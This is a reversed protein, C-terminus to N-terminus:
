LASSNRLGLMVPSPDNVTVLKQLGGTVKCIYACTSFCTCAAKLTPGTTKQMHGEETIICIVLGSIESALDQLIDAALLIFHLAMSFIM